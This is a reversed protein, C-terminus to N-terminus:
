KSNFTSSSIEDRVRLFPRRRSSKDTTSSARSTGNSTGSTGNTSPHPGPVAQFSAKSQQALDYGNSYAEVGRNSIAASRAARLEEQQDMVRRIQENLTDMEPMHSLKKEHANLQVRQADRKERLAKQDRQLRQIKRRGRYGKIMGGGWGRLDRFRQYRRYFWTRLHNLGIGLSIAGAVAFLLGTLVFSLLGWTSNFRETSLEEYQQQLPEIEAQPAGENQLASIQETLQDQQQEIAYAETRFFGLVVLTGVTLAVAIGILVQFPRKNGNWYPKEVLRDYAPKMLVALLAIGIAFLWPEVQGQLRLGNAVVERSMIIEGAIFVLGALTYLAGYLLSGQRPPASSDSASENEEAEAERKANQASAHTVAAENYAEEAEATNREYTELRTRDREVEAELEIRETRTSKLEHEREALHDLEKNIREVESQIRVFREFPTKDVEEAGDIYGHAFARDASPEEKTTFTYRTSMVRRADEKTRAAHEDESAATETPEGNRSAADGSPPLETKGNRAPEDPEAAGNSSPVEGAGNRSAGFGPINDLIGM